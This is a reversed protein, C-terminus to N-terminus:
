RAFESGGARVEGGVVSEVGLGIVGGGVVGVGGLYDRDDIEGAMREGGGFGRDKSFAEGKGGGGAKVMEAENSIRCGKGALEPPFIVPVGM